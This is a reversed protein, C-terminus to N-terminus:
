CWELKFKNRLVSDLNNFNRIMDETNDCMSPCLWILAREVVKYGSGTSINSTNHSRFVKM